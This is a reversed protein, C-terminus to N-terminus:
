SICEFQHGTHEDMVFSKLGSSYQGNEICSIYHLLWYLFCFDVNVWTLFDVNVLKDLKGGSIDAVCAPYWKGNYWKAEVDEGISFLQLYYSSSINNTFHVGILNYCTCWVITSWATTSLLLACAWMGTWLLFDFM